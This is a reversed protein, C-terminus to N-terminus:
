TVERIVLQMTTGKGPTSVIDLTGGLMEIRERVGRLGLKREQDVAQPDFGMGDDSILAKIEQQNRTLSFTVHRANAHRCINEIMEQAVRYITQEIQPSLGNIQPSVNLDVSFGERQAASEALSRIALELGLDELPSARLAQLARRTETLGSRTITLAERLLTQAQAPQTKWLTDTAELQVSLASLTHALTDHLERALRNRERSVALQEVKASFKELLSAYSSLNQNVAELEAQQKQQQTVLKTIIFGVVLFATSRTITTNLFIVFFEGRLGLFNLKLLVDFLAAIIVFIVVGQLRYQWAALVLPLFLLIGWSDNLIFLINSGLSPAHPANPMDMPPLRLMQGQQMEQHLLLLLTVMVLAFPLYYKGLWVSLRSVSLYLYLLVFAFLGMIQMTPDAARRLQLNTQGSVFLIIGLVIIAGIFSRFIVLIQPDYLSTRNMM